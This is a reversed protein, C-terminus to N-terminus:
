QGDDESPPKARLVLRFRAAKTLAGSSGFSLRIEKNAWSLSHMESDFPAAVSVTEAALVAGQETLLNVQVSYEYDFATSVGVDLVARLHGNEESIILSHISLLVTAKKRDAYSAMLQTNLTIQKSLQMPGEAETVVTDSRERASEPAKVPPSCGGALPTIVLGVVLAWGAYLGTRRARRSSVTSIFVRLALVGLPGKTM